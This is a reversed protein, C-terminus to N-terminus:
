RSRLSRRIKLPSRRADAIAIVLLHEPQVRFLAFVPFPSLLVKRLDRYYIPASLPFDTYPRIAPALLDTLRDGLGPMATDYWEAIEILDARAEFSVVVQLSM